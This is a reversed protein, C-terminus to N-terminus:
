PTTSKNIITQLEKQVQELEQCKQNIFAKEIERQELNEQHAKEQQEILNECLSIAQDIVATFSEIRSEFISSIYQNIEELIQNKSQVFKSLGSEIIKQKIGTNQQEDVGKIFNNVGFIIPALLILGSSALVVYTLVNVSWRGLTGFFPKTDINVLDYNICGSLRTNINKDIIELKTNLESTEQLIKNNLIELHKEIIKSLSYIQWLNLTSKLDEIFQNTYEKILEKQEFLRSHKSSWKVSRNALEEPLESYWKHWSEHAENVAQYKLQEAFSRLKLDCGSISGIKEIIELKEAKSLSIKGEVIKNYQILLDLSKIILSDLENVSRKIKIAGREFTLFRELSQTFSQFSKLYDDDDGNQISKLANKASIYHIRNEGTRILLKESEVFNELRKKVDQHDEENDLTDMFNVLIFLNEAAEKSEGNNLQYRVDKILEKEKESLLHVTNTLFIVADTEKLLKYTIATRDPHENLGPSDVIEVGSKCLALEPHEFIIEELDSQLLEDSRHELAAEKSIAAKVKYQDLPIEESRGDKYLCIVRKQTGYKLVTVTGSCPIVRVPQIEEGVLANLLTSKGKSFEGVVALRFTQSKIKLSVEAIEGILSQPIFGRKRFEQIINTIQYCFYQLKKRYEQFKKLEGYSLPTSQENTEIELKAPLSDLIHNAAEILETDLAYFRNPALLNKVEELADPDVNIEHTFGAELIALHQPDIGLWYGVTEIYNKEHLNIDNDVFSMEYALSILILKESNSLIDTLTLFEPSDAYIQHLKIGSSVYRMILNLITMPSKIFRQLIKEWCQKEQETAMGDADAVGRLIVILSALFIILPTIDRQSLRVGSIKKLLEVTESTVRSTAMFIERKYLIKLNNGLQIL